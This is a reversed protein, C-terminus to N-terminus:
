YTAEGCDCLFTGLNFQLTSSLMLIHSVHFDYMLVNYMNEVNITTLNYKM